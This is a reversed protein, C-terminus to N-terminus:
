SFSARLANQSDLCGQNAGKQLWIRAQRLSVKGGLGKLCMVGLMYQADKDGRFAGRIFWKRAQSFYYNREALQSAKCALETYFFGLYYSAEICGQLASKKHWEHAQDRDGRKYYMHGLYLQAKMDGQLAAKQYRKIAKDCDISVKLREQALERERVAAQEYYMRPKKLNIKAGKGLEYVIGLCYQAYASGQEEAKKCWFIGQDHNIFEESTLYIFALMCQAEIDGQEAAQKFWFIGKKKDILSAEDGFFYTNGLTHQAVIDRELARKVLQTVDNRFLSPNSVVKNTDNLNSRERRKNDKKVKQQPLYDMTEINRSHRGEIEIQITGNRYNEKNEKDYETLIGRQLRNNEKESIIM